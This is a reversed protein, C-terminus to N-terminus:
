ICSYNVTFECFKLSNNQVFYKLREELVRTSQFNYNKSNCMCDPMYSVYRYRTKDAIAKRQM